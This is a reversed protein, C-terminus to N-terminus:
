KQTTYAREHRQNQKKGQQVSRRIADLAAFEALENPAEMRERNMKRDRQDQQNGHKFAGAEQSASLM